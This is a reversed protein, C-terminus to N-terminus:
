SQERGSQNRGILAHEAFETAREKMQQLQERLYSFSPRDDPSYSWCKLM